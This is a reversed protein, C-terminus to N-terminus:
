GSDSADAAEAAADNPTADADSAADNVPPPGTDPPPASDGVTQVPPRCTTTTPNLLEPPCCRPENTGLIKSDTCVLGDACDDNNNGLECREGEGQNSCAAVITFVGALVVGTLASTRAFSAKKM